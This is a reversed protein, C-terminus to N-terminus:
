APAGTRTAAAIAQELREVQDSLRFLGLRDLCTRLIGVHRDTGAQERLEELVAIAHAGDHVLLQPPVFRHVDRITAPALPLCGALVAEFLRQTMQGAAAYRDPLLLMTALSRRHLRAIEPFPQRGAFHVHPWRATDTWKGAVLHDVRAAAPAFFRDFAEDRDYQNGAYVLPLDRPAEALARPAASDLLVDDVPFLLRHAGRTPHLAPECM